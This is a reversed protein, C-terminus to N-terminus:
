KTADHYLIEATIVDIIYVYSMDVDLDNKVIKDFLIIYSLRNNWISIDVKYEPIVEQTFNANLLMNEKLADQWSIKVADEENIKPIDRMAVESNGSSKGYAILEGERDFFIRIIDGTKIGNKAIAEFVMTYTDDINKYDAIKYELINNDEKNYKKIYKEAKKVIEDRKINKNINKKSNKDEKVRVKMVIETSDPLTLYMYKDDEFKLLKNKESLADVGLYRVKGNANGILKIAEAHKNNNKAFINVEKYLFSMTFTAILLMLISICFISNKKNM